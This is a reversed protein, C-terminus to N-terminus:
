SVSIARSPGLRAISSKQRLDALPEALILNSRVDPFALRRKLRGLAERQENINASIPGEAIVSAGVRRFESCGHLLERGIVPFSGTIAAEAHVLDKCTFPSTPGCPARRAERRPRHFPM